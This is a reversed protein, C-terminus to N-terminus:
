CGTTLNSGRMTNIESQSITPTGVLRRTGCDTMLSTFSPNDCCRPMGPPCNVSEGTIHNLGLVHGVEHALTWRTGTQAIVVSPQNAPSSACGNLTRGRNDLVSRVFYATIEDNGVNNRNQFLQMQETTMTQGRTCRGVDVDLLPAFDQGTLLERSVVQVRISAAIYVAHMSRVMTEIPVNPQQLVKIHIRNCSTFPCGQLRLFHMVSLPVQLNCRRASERVSLEPGPDIVKGSDIFSRV